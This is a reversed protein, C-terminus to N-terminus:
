TKCKKCIWYSEEPGFQSDPIYHFKAEQKEISDRSIFQGCDQCKISYIKNKPDALDSLTLETPM